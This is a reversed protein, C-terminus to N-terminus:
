SFNLLLIYALTCGFASHQQKAPSNVATDSKYHNDDLIFRKFLTLLFIIM